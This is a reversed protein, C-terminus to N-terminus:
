KSKRQYTFSTTQQAIAAGTAPPSGHSDRSLSLDRSPKSQHVATLALLVLCAAAIAASLLTSQFAPRKM